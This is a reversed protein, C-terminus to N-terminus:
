PEETTAKLQEATFASCNSLSVREVSLQRFLELGDADIFSVEALDLVLRGAPKLLIEFCVRRLENVWAGSIQGELRL